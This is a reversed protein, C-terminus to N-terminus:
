GKSKFKIKPFSFQMVLIFILLSILTFLLIFLLSLDALRFDMKFPIIKAVPKSLQTFYLFFIGYLVTGVKLIAANKADLYKCIIPLLFIFAVQYYFGIRIMLTTSPFLLTVFISVFSLNLIMLDLRNSTIRDYLRISILFLFLPFICRLRALMNSNAAIFGTDGYVAYQNTLSIMFSAIEDAFFSLPISIVCLFLLFSRNIKHVVLYAPLMLLISYHFLAGVLITLIFRFLQKKLIFQWSYVFISISLFQRVGNLSDFYPGLCIFLIASFIPMVSIKGIVYFFFFLTIFAMVWLWYGGDYYGCNLLGYKIALNAPELKIITAINEGLGMYSGWDIGVDWRFGAFFLLIVFIGWLHISSKKIRLEKESFM